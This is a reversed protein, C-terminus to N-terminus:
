YCITLTVTVARGGAMAQGLSGAQRERKASLCIYWFVDFYRNCGVLSNHMIFDPPKQVEISFDLNFVVFFIGCIGKSLEFFTLNSKVQM